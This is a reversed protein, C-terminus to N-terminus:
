YIDKPFVSYLNVGIRWTLLVASRADNSCAKEIFKTPDVAPLFNDATIDWMSCNSSSFPFCAPNPCFVISDIKSQTALSYKPLPM